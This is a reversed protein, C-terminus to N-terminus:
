WQDTAWSVLSPATEFSTGGNGAHVAKGFVFNGDYPNDGDCATAETGAGQGGNDGRYVSLSYPNQCDTMECVFTNGWVVGTGGRLILKSFSSSAPGGGPVNNIFTNSYIEWSRTSSRTPPRAGNDEHAAFDGNTVKNHRAVWAGGMGSDIAAMAGRVYTPNHWVNDEIYVASLTGIVSDRTWATKDDAGVLIGPFPKPDGSFLNHDIVGYAVHKPDPQYAHAVTIGRTSSVEPRKPNMTPNSFRNHDIRFQKPSNAVQLMGPAGDMRGGQFDFGSIRTYEPTDTKVLVITGSIFTQDQGSGILSLGKTITLTSTWVAKGASVKVTDGSGARAVCASVSDYDPSATWTPSSGSCTQAHLFVTSALLGLFALATIRATKM